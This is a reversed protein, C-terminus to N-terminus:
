EEKIEDRLEKPELVKAKSGQSLIWRKIEDTGAKDYKM